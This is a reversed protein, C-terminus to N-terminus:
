PARPCPLGVIDVIQWVWETSAAVRSWGGAARSTHYAVILVNVGSSDMFTVDSFDLVTRSTATGDVCFAEHLRNDEDEPYFSM